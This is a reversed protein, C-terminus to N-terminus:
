GGILWAEGGIMVAPPNAYRTVSQKPKVEAANINKARVEIPCFVPWGAELM